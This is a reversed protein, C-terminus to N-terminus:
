RRFFVRRPVNRSFDDLMKETPEFTLCIKDNNKHYVAFYVKDTGRNSTLDLRKTIGADRFAGNHEETLPAFYEFARSHVSVMKYRKRRAAIKDADLEGNTVSYEFEVNLSTIGIYLFYIVVAPILLFFSALYRAFSMAILLLVLAGFIMAAILLYERAGKKREVIYENFLDM